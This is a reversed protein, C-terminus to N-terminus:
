LIRRNELFRIVSERTFRPSAYPGSKPRTERIMVLGGRRALDHVHQATCSLM